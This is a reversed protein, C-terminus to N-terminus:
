RRLVEVAVAAVVLGGAFAVRRSPCQWFLVRCPAEARRLASTLDGVEQRLGSAARQELSLAARLEVAQQDAFALALRDHDLAARLVVTEEVCLTLASDVMAVPASDARAPAPQGAAALLRRREARLRDATAIAESARDQARAAAGRLSDARQALDAARVSDARSHVLASDARHILRDRERGWRDSQCKQQVAAGLLLVGAAAVHGWSLKM